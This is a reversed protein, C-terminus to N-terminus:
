LNDEDVEEGPIEKGFDLKEAFLRGCEVCSFQTEEAYVKMHKKQGDTGTFPETCHGCYFQKEGVHLKM